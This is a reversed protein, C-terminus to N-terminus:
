YESQAMIIKFIREVEARDNGLLPYLAAKIVNEKAQHGRFADPKVKLVTEDIKLALAENDGLNNFLARKGPTNLAPPTATATGAQVQKAVAAIQKLFEEYDIQKQRLDELIQGLLDSMRDYFAPDNLHDKMIKSRVNNAITEAVASQNSKIGSPLTNIADAIGSKVILDLLGVEGFASIPVPELAEIYTDILHRMDAEYAKLDITEGSAKRIVERLKLYRDIDRKIADISQPSYGAEQMEDSINAFARILAVVSKYLAVRRPEM